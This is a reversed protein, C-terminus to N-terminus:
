GFLRKDGTLIVRQGKAVLQKRDDVADFLWAAVLNIDIIVEGFLVAAKQM